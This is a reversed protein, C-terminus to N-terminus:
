PTGRFAAALFLHDIGCAAPGSARRHHGHCCPCLASLIRRFDHPRWELPADAVTIQAAQSTAVMCERIYSRTIPRDESGYRRQFLFPMPASWTQEFVDYASVLPLAAKGARVRFIIATLVEALEPSVLIRQVLLL